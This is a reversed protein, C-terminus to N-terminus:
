QSETLPCLTDGVGWCIGCTNKIHTCEQNLIYGRKLFTTKIKKFDCERKICIKEHEEVDEKTGIRKCYSCRVLYEM